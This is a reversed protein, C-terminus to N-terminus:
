GLMEAVQVGGSVLLILLCSAMVASAAIRVMWSKRLTTSSENSQGGIMPWFPDPPPSELQRAQSEASSVLYENADNSDTLLFSSKPLDTTSLEAALRDLEELRTVAAVRNNVQLIDIVASVHAEVTRPSIGLERAIQKSTLGKGVLDICARQRPTLASKAFEEQQRSKLEM